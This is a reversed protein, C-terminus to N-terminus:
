DMYREQILYMPKNKLKNIYKAREYPIVKWHRYVNGRKLKNIKCWLSNNEIHNDIAQLEQELMEDIMKVEYIIYPKIVLVFRWPEDFLYTVIVKNRPAVYEENRYFCLQEEETLKLKNNFWEYEYIPRLTQPREEYHYRWRKRKRSKFNKDHHYEVTNIKDLIGQYFAAKASQQVDKRLVFLRKWGKQYPQALPIMPLERKQKWLLNQHKDLQILRKDRDKKVLRRKQRASKLRYPMEHLDM